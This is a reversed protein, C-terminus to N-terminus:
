SERLTAHEARKADYIVLRLALEVMAVNVTHPLAVEDEVGVWAAYVKYAADIIKEPDKAM